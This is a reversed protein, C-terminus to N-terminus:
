NTSMKSVQGPHILLSSSDFASVSNPAKGAEKSMGDVVTAVIVKRGESTMILNVPQNSSATLRSPVAPYKDPNLKHRYEAAADPNTVNYAASGKSGEATAAKFDDDVKGSKYWQYVEYASFATVATLIGTILAPLGGLTTALLPLGGGGGIGLLSNIGWGVLKLPTYLAGAAHKLVWMGGSLLALGSIALVTEGVLKAVEPYKHALDTFKQLADSLHTLGKTFIDLLGGDKGMVLQLNEWKKDFDILKGNYTGGVANYAPDLGRSIAFSEVSHEITKLQKDILNFMKGGTRGFILGNERQIQEETLHQKQYIPLIMQKYYEIPSQSFLSSNILPNGKFRKVGGQDNLEIKNKDWVGMKMLDHTVQNPLKIIGNLRNYSTMLADGATSGKLEGIIPEMEAFLAKDSLHFAATGAKAMFQRYQTFDINGGSSQIAKFGSNMLDNFRAPSQLGGATEVFRLMDMQKATTAEKMGEDLGRSAFSIKAMVPAALKAAALQETLTHAGSERFVGQAETFYKLMDTTSTGLVQTTQAFKEADKLAAEGMGYQNFKETITQYKAAEDVFGDLLKFGLYGTALNAMGDGHGGSRPSKSGAGGVGGGNGPTQGGGWGGPPVGNRWGMLGASLQGGSGGPGALGLGGIPPRGGNGFGGSSSSGAVAGIALYSAASIPAPLGGNRAQSYAKKSQDAVQKMADAYERAGRTSTSFQNGMAKNMKSIANQADKAASTIGKISKAMQIFKENLKVADQSIRMMNRTIQDDLALRVAVNYAQINM